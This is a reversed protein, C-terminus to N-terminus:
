WFSTSTHIKRTTHKKKGNQKKFKNWKFIFLYVIFVRITQKVKTEKM